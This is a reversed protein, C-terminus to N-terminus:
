TLENSTGPEITIQSSSYTNIGTNNDRKCTLEGNSELWNLHALSEGLAMMSEVPSLSRKFLYKMAQYACFNTNNTAFDRLTELQEEHHEILQQARIHMQKFVPGHAPLVLTDRELTKLKELSAFWNKLPQGQPEMETVLINSSIHPLLQDGAILLKENKCYLCAHEPSHGDGIVIQWDRQGIKLVDGERIRTFSDPSLKIFPDKRCAGLMADVDKSPTGTRQYFDLQHENGINEVGSSIAKLTYFEGHTMYLPVNFTQTLWNALGSHDYHFHTCIVGKIPKNKCHKEVVTLWLQRTTETNLGTDLIFWGDDDELLYVNIHDLTMPMPMRLWLLGEAIVVASGDATPPEKPYELSNYREHKTPRNPSNM